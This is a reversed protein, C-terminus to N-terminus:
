GSAMVWSSVGGIGMMSFLSPTGTGAGRFAFLFHRAIVWAIRTRHKGALAASCFGTRACWAARGGDLSSFTAAHMASRCSRSSRTTVFISLLKTKIRTLGNGSTPLNALQHSLRAFQNQLDLSAVSGGARYM